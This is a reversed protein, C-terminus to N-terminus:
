GRGRPTSLNKCQTLFMVRGQTESSCFEQATSLVLIDRTDPLCQMWAVKASEGKEGVAVLGRLM